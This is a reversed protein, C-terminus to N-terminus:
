GGPYGNKTLGRRNQGLDIIHARVCNETKLFGDSPHRKQIVTCLYIFKTSKGFIIFFFQIKIGNV